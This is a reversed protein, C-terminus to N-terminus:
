RTKQWYVARRDIPFVEDVIGNQARYEDIARRCDHLNLYDDFIAYGGPSLKPYLHQLVDRTSSYLDADVRLVSLAKIPATPLTASFFGKLFEVGDDLLGYRAFNARVIDLSVAMDGGRWGFSELRSEDPLGEFSDAVWVRRGEQGHAKLVARMFITMGGRWVGAELVDGPVGRAVVEQICAQMNDLQRIGIMTEAGEGRNHAEHGSEMYDEVSPQIVRVLELGLPDLVGHALGLALRKLPHRAKITHRERAQATVTRTLTRKMLDLYLERADTPRPSTHVSSAITQM